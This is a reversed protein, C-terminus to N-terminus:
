HRKKKKLQEVRAKMENKRREGEDVRKKWEALKERLKTTEPDERPLAASPLQATLEALRKKLSELKRELNAICEESFKLAKEYRAWEEGAADPGPPQISDMEEACSAIAFEM